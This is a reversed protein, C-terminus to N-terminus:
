FMYLGDSLHRISWPLKEAVSIHISPHFCIQIFIVVMKWCQSPVHLQFGRKHFCPGIWSAYDIAHNTIVQRRLSGLCWCGHYQGQYWLINWNWCWIPEHFVDPVCGGMSSAQNSMFCTLLVINILMIQSLQGYSRVLQNDIQTSPSVVWM